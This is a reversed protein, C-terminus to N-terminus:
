RYYLFTNQALAHGMGQTLALLQKDSETVAPLRMSQSASQLQQVIQRCSLIGKLWFSSVFRALPDFCGKKSLHCSCSTSVNNWHPLVKLCIDPPSDLATLMMCQHEIPAARIMHMYLVDELASGFSIINGDPM